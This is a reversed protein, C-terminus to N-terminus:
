QTKAASRTSKIEMVQRPSYPVPFCLVKGAVPIINCRRRKPKKGSRRLRVHLISELIAYILEGNNKKTPQASRLFIDHKEWSRYTICEYPTTERRNTAPSRLLHIRSYRLDEGNGTTPKVLCCSIDYKEWSRYIICEILANAKKSEDRAVTSPNKSLPSYDKEM